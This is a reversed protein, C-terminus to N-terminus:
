RINDQRNPRTRREKMRNEKKEARKSDGGRRERKEEARM